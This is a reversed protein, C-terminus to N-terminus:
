QAKSMRRKCYIVIVLMIFGVISMTEPPLNATNVWNYLTVSSKASLTVIIFIIIFLSKM